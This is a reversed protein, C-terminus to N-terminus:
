FEGLAIDNIDKESYGMMSLRTKLRQIIRKHAGLSAEVEDLGDPWAEFFDALTEIATDVDMIHLCDDSDEWAIM